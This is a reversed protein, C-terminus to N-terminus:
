RTRSHGPLIRAIVITGQTLMQILKYQSINIYVIAETRETKKSVVQKIFKIVTKVM